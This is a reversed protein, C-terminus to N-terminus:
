RKYQRRSHCSDLFVLNGGRTEYVKNKKTMDHIDCGWFAAISQQHLTMLSETIRM